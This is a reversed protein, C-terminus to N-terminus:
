GFQLPGDCRKAGGSLDPRGLYFVPELAAAQLNAAACAQHQSVVLASSVLVALSIAAVIRPVVRDVFAMPLEKSGHVLAFKTFDSQVL